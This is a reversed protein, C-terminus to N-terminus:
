RLSRCGRPSTYVLMNSEWKDANFGGSVVPHNSLGESAMFTEVEFGPVGRRVLRCCCRWSLNVFLDPSCVELSKGARMSVSLRQLSGGRPEIGPAM